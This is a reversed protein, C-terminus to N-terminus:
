AEDEAVIKRQRQAKSPGDAPDRGGRAARGTIGIEWNGTSRIRAPNGDRGADARCGEGM